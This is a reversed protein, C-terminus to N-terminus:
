NGSCYKLKKAFCRWNHSVFSLPQPKEGFSRAEKSGGGEAMFHIQFLSKRGAVAEAFQLVSILTTKHSEWCKELYTGDM